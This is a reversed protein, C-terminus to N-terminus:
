HGNMWVKTIISSDNRQCALFMKERVKRPKHTHKEKKKRKKRKGELYWKCQNKKQINKTKEWPKKNQEEKSPPAKTKIESKRRDDRPYSLNSVMDHLRSNAKQMLDIFHQIAPSFHCCKNIFLYDRKQLLWIVLRRGHSGEQINKTFALWSLKGWKLHLAGLAAPPNYRHHWSSRGLVNAYTTDIQPALTVQGVCKCSHHRDTTGPHGAWCM